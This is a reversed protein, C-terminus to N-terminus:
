KVMNELFYKHISLDSTLEPHFAIALMNGQRAAVIKGDVVALVDVGEGASEIFPARIFTMDVKGIGKFDSTTRFSGL